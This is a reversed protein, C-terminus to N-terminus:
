FFFFFFFFFFFNFFLLFTGFKGSKGYQKDSEWQGILLKEQKTIQGLTLRGHSLRQTNNKHTNHSSLILPPSHLNDTISVTSLMEDNLEREKSGYCLIKSLIPLMRLILLEIILIMPLLFNLILKGFGTMNEFLCTSESGTLVAIDLSFFSEVRSLYSLDANFTVVSLVQYFYLMTKYIYTFLPTM